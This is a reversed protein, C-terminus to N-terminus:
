LGQKSLFDVLKNVARARHSISNKQQATMQAFTETHGTPKFVPDYGFGQNGQKEFTIEGEILGEFYQEKGDLLLSIVTKFTAKRSSKGELEKLLKKMNNEANQDEGAYRASYVGPAGGLAEVELGSDDAFCNIGFKEYIHKAKILANESLTSATEEIEDTFFLDNLSLLEISKPLLQEIEKLKNLNHTAFVLKM